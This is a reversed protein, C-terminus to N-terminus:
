KIPENFQSFAIAFTFTRERGCLWYPTAEASAGASREARHTRQRHARREVLGVASAVALRTCRGSRCVAREGVQQQEGVERM